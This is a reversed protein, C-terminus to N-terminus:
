KSKSHLTILDDKEWFVGIEVREFVGFVSVVFVWNDAAAAVAGSARRLHYGRDSFFEIRLM